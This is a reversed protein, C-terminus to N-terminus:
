NNVLYWYRTKNIPELYSKIDQNICICDKNIQGTSALFNGKPTKFSFEIFNYNVPYKETFAMKAIEALLLVSSMPSLFPLVGLTPETNNKDIITGKGCETIFQHLRNAEDHFRCLICWEQKPIHRGFNVGWNPTTTAHFVIPPLNNQINSWIIKQNALCLILDPPPKLFNDQKIYESYDCIYYRCKINPNNELIDICAKVKPLKKAAQFPTFPLSRNCNSYTINDFDILDISGSWNTLALLYNFSSGVAGCGPQHIHGFSWDEIFPANKLKDKRLSKKFDWLSYWQEEQLSKSGIAQRFLESSGLCAAFVAGLINKSNTQKSDMERSKIGIGALWGDCDVWIAKKSIRKIRSGIICIKNVKDEDVKDFELTIYPDIQLLTKKISNKFNNGEFFNIKSIVQDPIQFTIHRCWRTLINGIIWTMVQCQFDNAIADGLIIGVKFDEFGQVEYVRNTRDDRKLYWEKESLPFTM